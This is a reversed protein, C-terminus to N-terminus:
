KVFSPRSVLDPPKIVLDQTFSIGGGVHLESEM